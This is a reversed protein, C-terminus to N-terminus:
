PKRYPAYPDPGFFYRKPMVKVDIDTQDSAWALKALARVLQTIAPDTPQDISGRRLFNWRQDSGTFAVLYVIERPGVQVLKFNTLEDAASPDALGIQQVLSWLEAVQRHSLIRTLPPLWDPGHTRDLDPGYCLSGDPFVVYRSQQLHVESRPGVQAGTFMALDISFDAPAGSLPDTPVAAPESSCGGALVLLGSLGLLCLAM